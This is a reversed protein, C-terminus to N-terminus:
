IKYYAGACEIRCKQGVEIVTFVPDATRMIDDGVVLPPYSEVVVGTENGLLKVYVGLTPSPSAKRDEV